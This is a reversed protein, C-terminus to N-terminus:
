VQLATPLSTKLAKNITITEWIYAFTPPFLADAISYNVWGEKWGDNKQRDNRRGLLIEQAEVLHNKWASLWNRSLRSHTKATANTSHQPLLPSFLCEKNKIEHSKLELPASVSVFYASTHIHM